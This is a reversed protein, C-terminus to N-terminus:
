ETPPSEWLNIALGAAIVRTHGFSVEAMMDVDPSISCRIGILPNVSGERDGIEKSGTPLDVLQNRGSYFRVGGNVALEEFLQAEVLAVGAIESIVFRKAVDGIGRARDVTGRSTMYSLSIFGQLLDFLKPTVFAAGAGAFLGGHGKLSRFRSEIETTIPIGVQAHLLFGAGIPYGVKLLAASQFLDHRVEGIQEHSRAMSWLIALSPNNGDGKGVACCAGTADLRQQLSLLLLFPLVIRKM